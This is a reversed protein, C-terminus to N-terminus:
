DVDYRPRLRANAIAQRQREQALRAQIQQQSAQLLAKLEAGAQTRRLQAHPSLAREQTPTFALPIDLTFTATTDHLRM